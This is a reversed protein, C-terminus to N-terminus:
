VDAGSRLDVNERLSPLFSNATAKVFYMGPLLGSASYFGKLDTYTKVPQSAASTFIEVLVGLQPRGLSDNVHGSLNASGVPPAALAPVACLATVALVILFRSMKNAM